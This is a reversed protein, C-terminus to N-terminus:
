GGLYMLSGRCCLLLLIYWRGEQFGSYKERMHERIKLTSQNKLTELKRGKTRSAPPTQLCIDVQLLFVSKSRSFLTAFDNPAGCVRTLQSPFSHKSVCSRYLTYVRGSFPVNRIIKFTTSHENVDTNSPNHFKSSQRNVYKYMKKNKPKRQTVKFAASTHPIRINAYKPILGRKLCQRNFYINACCKLVEIWIGKRRNEFYICMIEKFRM